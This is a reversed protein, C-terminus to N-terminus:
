KSQLMNDLKQLSLDNIKDVGFLKSEVIDFTVQVADNSMRKIADIVTQVVSWTYNVDSICFDSDKMLQNIEAGIPSYMKIAEEFSMKQAKPSHKALIQLIQEAVPECKADRLETETPEEAEEASNDVSNDVIEAVEEGDVGENLIKDSLEEALKEDNM